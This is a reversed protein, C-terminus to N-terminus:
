LEAVMRVAPFVIGPRLQIEIEGIPRFGLAAYFPVATLTSQCDLRRVGAIQATDLIHSMLVRGIGRRVRKHDTVVHRIHAMDRPGVGGQPGQWTWGGAGVLDGDEFVGFYTGCRVLEPRARSIIPLATVLVSPAYDPKLLIPYSRALLGDVAATDEARTARITLTPCM